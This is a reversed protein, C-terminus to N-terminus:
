MEKKTNVCHGFDLVFSFMFIKFVTFAIQKVIQLENKKSKCSLNNAIYSLFFVQGTIKTSKQLVKQLHITTCIFSTTTATTNREDGRLM